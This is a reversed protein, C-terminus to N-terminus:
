VHARGIELINAQRLLWAPHVLGAYADLKDAAADAFQRAEEASQTVQLTGLVPAARVTIAVYGAGIMGGIWSWWPMQPLSSWAMSKAPTVLALVGLVVAGVVFNFLAAHFLTPTHRGLEANAAAQFPLLFGAM